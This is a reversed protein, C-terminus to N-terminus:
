EALKLLNGKGQALKNNVDARKGIYKRQAKKREPEAGPFYDDKMRKFFDPDAPRKDIVKQATMQCGAAIVYTSSRAPSAGLALLCTGAAADSTTKLLPENEIIENAKGMEDIPRAKAGAMAKGTRAVLEVTGRRIGRSIELTGFLPCKQNGQTVSKVCQYAFAKIGSWLGKYPRLAPEEVKEWDAAEEAFAFAALAVAMALAMATRATKNM